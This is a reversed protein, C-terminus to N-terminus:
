VIDENIVQKDHTDALPPEQNDPEPLEVVSCTVHHEVPVLPYQLTDEHDLSKKKKILLSVHYYLVGIFLIITIITSTYAM